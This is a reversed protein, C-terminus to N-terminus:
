SFIVIRNFYKSDFKNRFAQLIQGNKKIDFGVKAIM